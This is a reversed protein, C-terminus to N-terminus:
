DHNKAWDSNVVIFKVLNVASMVPSFYWKKKKCPKWKLEEESNENLLHSMLETLFDLNSADVCFYSYPSWYIYSPM